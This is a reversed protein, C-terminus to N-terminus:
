HNTSFRVRQLQKNKSSNEIKDEAKQAYSGSIFELTSPLNSTWGDAPLKPVLNENTPLARATIM